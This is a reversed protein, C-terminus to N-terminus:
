EEFSHFHVPLDSDLCLIPWFESHDVPSVAALQIKFDIILFYV